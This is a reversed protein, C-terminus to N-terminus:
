VGRGASALPCCFFLFILCPKSPLKAASHFIYIYFSALRHTRADPTRPWTSPHIFVDYISRLPVFMCLAWKPSSISIVGCMTYHSLLKSLLHPQLVLSSFPSLPLFPSPPCINLPHVLLAPLTPPVVPFFFDCVRCVSVTLCTRM